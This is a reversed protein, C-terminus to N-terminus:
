RRTQVANAKETRLELHINQGDMEWGHPALRLNPGIELAPLQLSFGEGNLSTRMNEGIVDTAIRQTPNHDRLYAENWAYSIPPPAAGLALRLTIKGGPSLALRTPGTLRTRFEVMPSLQGEIRAFMQAALPLDLDGAIENTGSNRMNEFAPPGAPQLHFAFESNQPYRQLEPFVWFQQWRNAMFAAFGPLESSRMSHTLQGALYEGMVLSRLAGAPLLLQLGSAARALLAATTDALPYHHEINEGPAVHPYVFRLTGLLELGAANERAERPEYHIKLHDKGSPLELANLLLLSADESWSAFTRDVEGRVFPAFNEFNSLTQLAERRVIEEFGQVGSCQMSEVRWAGVGWEATYEGLSLEVKSNVVDARVRASLAGHGAPLALVINECEAHLPIEIIIGDVERVITQTASIRGVTLRAALSESAILWERGGGDTRKPLRLSYDVEARVNQIQIPIGGPTITFNGIEVNQRGQLLHWFEEVVQDFLQENLQLRFESKVTWQAHATLPLITLIASLFLRM